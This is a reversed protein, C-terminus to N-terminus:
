QGDGMRESDEEERSHKKHLEIVYQQAAEILLRDRSKGYREAENDLAAIDYTDLPVTIAVSTGYFSM